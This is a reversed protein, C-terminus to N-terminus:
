AAQEERRSTLDIRAYAGVNAFALTLKGRRPRLGGRLLADVAIAGCVENGHTLANIMVHPGPKGSDFTHVYAIGTNGAAHASIDPFEVEIPYTEM